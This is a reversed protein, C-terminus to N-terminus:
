INGNRRGEQVRERLLRYAITMSQPVQGNGIARLRDMRGALGYAVGCLGPKIPRWYCRDLEQGPERGESEQGRGNGSKGKHRRVRQSDSADGGKGNDRPKTPGQRLAGSEGRPEDRLADGGSYALIWVRKRLHPAGADAASVVGWEADFGLKALSGLIDQLGRVILAASNEVFVFRPRVDRVIREMEYWLGSRKGQLGDGKGACSIDQCPFGGSVIDVLGRWPKGDFTRVDDWIPFVPLLGQNQRKCLVSRCFPDIEVACITEWGLALSGLLGGGVGAFLALERFSGGVM